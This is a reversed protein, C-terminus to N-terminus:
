FLNALELDFPDSCVPYSAHMYLAFSIVTWYPTIHGYSKCFYKDGIGKTNIQSTKLLANLFSGARLFLANLFWM